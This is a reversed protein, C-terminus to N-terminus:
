RVCRVLATSHATNGGGSVGYTFDIWFSATPSNPTPTQTWFNGGTVGPFATTDIAPSNRTEDVLTSLEHMGPTRWNANGALTLNNCYTYADDGLMQTTPATQQWILGTKNDTVTGTAITYRGAPADAHGVAAFSLLAGGLALAGGIARLRLTAAPSLSQNRQTM